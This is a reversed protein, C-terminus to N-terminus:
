KSTGFLRKAAKTGAALGEETLYVSKTGKAPNTILGKEHLADMVGFDYGKWSRGKDFSFVTLLALITEHIKSEDYDSM